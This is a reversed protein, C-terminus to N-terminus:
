SSLSGNKIGIPVTDQPIVSHTVERVLDHLSHKAFFSPYLILRGDPLVEAMPQQTKHTSVKQEASIIGQECISQQVQEKVPVQHNKLHRTSLEDITGIDISQYNTINKYYEFAYIVPLVTNGRYVQLQVHYIDYIYLLVACEDFIFNKKYELTANHTICIRGRISKFQNLVFDPLHHEMSFSAMSNISRKFKKKLQALV